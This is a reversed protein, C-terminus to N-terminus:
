RYFGQLTLWEVAHILEFTIFAALAMLVIVCVPTKLSELMLRFRIFWPM